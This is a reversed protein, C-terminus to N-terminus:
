RTGRFQEMLLENFARSKAPMLRSPMLISVAIPPLTWEPLVRRLSGDKVDVAGMMEDMVGIGQGLRLLSRLMTMNNASVRGGKNDIVVRRRGSRLQWEGSDHAHLLHLREHATLAAPGTPEGHRRLYAPSAYLGVSLSAVQQAILMSDPLAGLRIALDFGEAILDVRRPSLDLDVCVKPYRRLFKAMVPAILVAGVDAELSIRLTGSPTSAMGLVEENAERAAELIIECRALYIRGAETLEVRRTTRVFLQLGLSCEFGAIRRSLTSPPIALNTAADTFSRTRGVAVFLEINGIVNM